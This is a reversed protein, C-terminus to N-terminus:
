GHYRDFGHEGANMTEERDDVCQRIWDVRNKLEDVFTNYEDSESVGLKDYEKTIWRFLSAFQPLCLVAALNRGDAGETDIVEEGEEDSTTSGVFVKVLPGVMRGRGAPDPYCIEVENLDCEDIIARWDEDALSFLDTM